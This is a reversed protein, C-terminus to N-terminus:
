QTAGHVGSSMAQNQLPPQIPAPPVHHEDGNDVIQDLLEAEAFSMKDLKGQDQFRMAIDAFQGAITTFVNVIEPDFHSGANKCIEEVCRTHSFAPKYVRRSALADYVDAIAVIRAALPIQTGTIGTPYGNGDWREHHFMAIERAMGLFDSNGLRREIQLICDAGIKPHIQIHVREAETLGGRKLLLSDPIGVKGIDHLVSSIGIMRIFEPTVQDRFRPDKRMATALRVSYLSIRELHHGTETDRSEALKALGFVIADRTRVLESMAMLTREQKQQLEGDVPQLVKAVVLWNVAFFVASMWCLTVIQFTSGMQAPSSIASELSASQVQKVISLGFVLTVVQAITLFGVLRRLSFM